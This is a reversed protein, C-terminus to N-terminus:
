KDRCFGDETRSPAKAPVICRPENAGQSQTQEANAQEHKEILQEIKSRLTKSQIYDLGVRGDADKQETDIGNELLFHVMHQHPLYDSHRYNHAHEDIINCLLHWAGKGTEDVCNIKARMSLAEQASRIETNEIATLFDSNLEEQKWDINVQLSKEPNNKLETQAEQIITQVKQKLDDDLFDIGTSGYNNTIEVNLGAYVCSKVMETYVPTVGENAIEACISHFITEGWIFDQENVDAGRKLISIFLPTDQKQLTNELLTQLIDKRM